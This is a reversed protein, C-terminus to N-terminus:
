PDLHTKPMQPSAIYDKMQYLDPSILLVWLNLCVTSLSGRECPSHSPTYDPTILGLLASPLQSGSCLLPLLLVQLPRHPVTRSSSAPPQSPSAPPFVAWPKNSMKSSPVPFKLAPSCPPTGHFATKKAHTAARGVVESCHHSRCLGQTPTLWGVQEAWM